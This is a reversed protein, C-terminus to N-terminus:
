AEVENSATSDKPIYLMKLIGTDEPLWKKEEKSIPREYGLYGPVEDRGPLKLIMGSESNEAANPFITCFGITTSVLLLVVLSRVVAQRITIM